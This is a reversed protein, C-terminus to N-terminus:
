RRADAGCEPCRADAGLGERSHGCTACRNRSRRRRKVASVWGAHVAGLLASFLLVDVALASWIPKTLLYWQEQTGEGFVRANIREGAQPASTAAVDPIGSWSIGSMCRLPWGSSFYQTQRIAKHPTWPETPTGTWKGDKNAEDLLREAEEATMAAPLGGEENYQTVVLVSVLHRSLRIVQGYPRIPAQVESMEAHFRNEIMPGFLGLILTIFTGTALLVAAHTFLRKSSWGSFVDTVMRRTYLTPRHLPHYWHIGAPNM